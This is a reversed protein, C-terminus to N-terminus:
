EHRLAEIPDMRAARMAPAVGFIVGVAFCVGFAMAIAAPTVLPNLPTYLAVMVCVAGALLTGIVGGMTALIVAETLFHWFIDRQAAGAAKRIGIERTRETVTVMMINMIGIGAVVLSIGSIAAVLATAINFVRYIAGLLQEQTLLAFDESGHNEQLKAKIARLVPRPPRRLDTQILIRNIQGGKFSAKAAEIPIYISNTFFGMGFLSEKEPRLVGVVTFEVGRIRVKKGIASEEGFMQRKPVNALVCVNKREEAPSFFGGEVLPHRRINYLEATSALVVASYGSEVNDVVREVTGFVFMLPLSRQVGPISNLDAADKETLTSIGLTAMINPQGMADLKGPLVFLVNTGLEEMQSTIDAKVGQGIAVLLVVSGVGIVIGLM